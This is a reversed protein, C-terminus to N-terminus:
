RVRIRLTCVEERMRVNVIYMGPVFPAAFSTVGQGFRGAFVKNGMVNYVEVEAEDSLSLAVPAGAMPDSPSVYAAPANGQASAANHAPIYSCTTFRQGDARLMRLTFVDNMNLLGPQEMYSLTAGEVEEGNRLWQFESFAYLEYDSGDAKKAVHAGALSLIANETWRHYIVSSDYTLMVSTHFANRGWICGGVVTDFILDIDYVGPEAGMPVAIHLTDDDKLSTYTADAFGQNAKDAESFKVSCSALRARNAPVCKRYPIDLVPKGCACEIQSLLNICLTDGGVLVTDFQVCGDANSFAFIYENVPLDNLLSDAPTHADEHKGTGDSYSVTFANFGTGTVKLDVSVKGNELEVRSYPLPLIEGACSIVPEIPKTVTVNYYVTSDCGVSTKLSFDGWQGSPKKSSDYTTNGVTLKEGFCLTTDGLHINYTNGVTVDYVITSDCGNSATFTKSYMGTVPIWMELEDLWAPETPKNVPRCLVKKITDPRISADALDFQKVITSDCGGLLSAQLSITFHGGQGPINLMPSVSGSQIPGYATGDTLTGSIQWVNEDCRSTRDRITDNKQIILSHSTNHIDLKYQCQEVTTTWSFEPAPLRPVCASYLDFYCSTNETSTLRCRYTATDQPEFVRTTAGPIANNYKDYWQYKFGDPAILTMTTGADKACSASEITAKACDLTFYAYGYHASWFCDFTTLRVRIVQGDQIGLERLNLGVTTWPKWVVPTSYYGGGDPYYTRWENRDVDTAVFNRVGCTPEILNNNEDLIELLFRPSDDGHGDPDELVVAYQMLVVANSSDVVYEYTIAEAGYGDEWNGLRVSAYGGKPILPLVNGTRPDTATKDWNVTHRSLISESGHDVVGTHAYAQNRSAPNDYGAGGWGGGEDTNGYTCTVTPAYLDTFNVCHREPCFVVLESGYMWASTDPTCIGRVRIELNGEDLNTIYTSVKTYDTPNVTFRTESLWTTTGVMRYNVEYAQSNGTWSVLASDCSIVSASIDSPRRCNTNTIVINDVCAGITCASKVRNNNVWAFVLRNVTVGDSTFTYSNNSWSESGYLNNFIMKSGVPNALSNPLSGTNRAMLTCGSFDGIGVYLASSPGGICLWDFTLIYTGAPLLFDRYAYQVCPVSDFLADQGNNSIYLSQRGASHVSNGVTWADLLEFQDAGPNLTWNALESTENAEFNMQYPLSVTQASVPRSVAILGVCVAGLIILLHKRMFM